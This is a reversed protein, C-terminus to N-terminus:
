AKGAGDDVEADSGVGGFLSGEGDDSEEEKTNSSENSKPLGAFPGSEGDFATLDAVVEEIPKEPIIEEAQLVLDFPIRVLKVGIGRVDVTLDAYEETTVQVLGRLLQSHGDPTYIMVRLDNGSELAQNFLSPFLEASDFLQNRLGESYAMIKARPYFNHHYCDPCLESIGRPQWDTKKRPHRCLERVVSGM